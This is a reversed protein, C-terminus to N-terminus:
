ATPLKKRLAFHGVIITQRCKGGLMQVSGHPEKQVGIHQQIAIELSCSSGCTIGDDHLAITCRMRSGYGPMREGIGEVQNTPM